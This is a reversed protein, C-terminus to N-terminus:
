RDTIRHHRRATGYRHYSSSIRHRRACGAAAASTATDALQRDLGAEQARVDPWVVSGGVLWGVLWRYVCARGGRVPGPEAGTTLSASAGTNAFPSIYRGLPSRGGRRRHKGPYGFLVFCDQQTTVGV